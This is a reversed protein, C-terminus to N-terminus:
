PTFDRSFPPWRHPSTMAHPSRSPVREAPVPLMQRHRRLRGRDWLLGSLAVASGPPCQSQRSSSGLMVRLDRGHIDNHLDAAPLMRTAPFRNLSILEHAKLAEAALSRLTPDAENLTVM